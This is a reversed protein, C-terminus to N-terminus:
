SSKSTNSKTKGSTGAKWQTDAPAPQLSGSDDYAEDDDDDDDDDPAQYVTTRDDQPASLPADAQVEDTSQSTQTTTALDVAYVAAGAGVGAILAASATVAIVRPTSTSM